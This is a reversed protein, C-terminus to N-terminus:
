VPWTVIEAMSLTVWREAPEAWVIIMLRPTCGTQVSCAGETALSAKLLSAPVFGESALWLKVIPMKPAQVPLIVIVGVAACPHILTVGGDAVIVPPVAVKVTVIVDFVSLAPGYLPAMESAATLALPTVM